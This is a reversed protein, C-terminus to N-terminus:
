VPIGLEHLYQILARHSHGTCELVISVQTLPVYGGIRDGLTRFGDRSTTFTLAPGHEFRQDRSILTPSLFGAVHSGKGIDIGM